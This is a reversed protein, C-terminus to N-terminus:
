TREPTAAASPKRSDSLYLLACAALLGLDRVLAGKLSTPAEPDAPGFCACDVDLGRAIGYLLVAVFGLLQATILHRAGLRQFALGVGALVELAAVAFAATPVLGDFVLGFAAVTERFAALDGLKSLGAYAFLLGLAAQLGWRLRVIPDGKRPDLM